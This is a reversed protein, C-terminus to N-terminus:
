RRATRVSWGELAMCRPDYLNRPGRHARVQRICNPPLLGPRAVANQMCRAGYGTYRGRDTPVTIYCQEPLLRVDRRPPTRRPPHPRPAVYRPPTPQVVRAGRDRDRDLAEKLIYLAALGGLVKAIDRNDAHAPATTMPLALALSLTAALLNRFM